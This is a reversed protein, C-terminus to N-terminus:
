LDLKFGAMYTNKYPSFGLQFHIPNSPRVQNHKNVFGMIDDRSPSFIWWSVLAAVSAGMGVYLSTINSDYSFTAAGVYGGLAVAALSGTVIWATTRKSRIKELEPKLSAHNKPDAKSLHEMYDSIGDLSADYYQNGVRMNSPTQPQAMMHAPPPPPPAWEARANTAGLACSLLLVIKTVFAPKVM